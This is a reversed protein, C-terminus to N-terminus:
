SIITMTIYSLIISIVVVVLIILLTSIAGANPNKDSDYKLTLKFSEEKEKEPSKELETNDKKSELEHIKNVAEQENETIIQNESRNYEVDYVM